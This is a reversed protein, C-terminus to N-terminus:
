RDTYLIYYLALCLCIRAWYYELEGTFEGDIAMFSCEAIAQAVVDLNVKFDLVYKLILWLMLFASETFSLPFKWEEEDLQLTVKPAILPDAHDISSRPRHIWWKRLCRGIVSCSRHIKRM